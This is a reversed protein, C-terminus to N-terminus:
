GSFKPRLHSVEQQDHTNEWTWEAERLAAEAEQLAGPAYTAIDPAQKAQTYSAHARELTQHNRPSCGVTWTSTIFVAGLVIGLFSQDLNGTRM